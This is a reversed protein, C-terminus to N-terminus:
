LESLQQSTVVIAQIHGPEPWTPNTSAFYYQPLNERPVETRRHFMEGAAGHKDNYM